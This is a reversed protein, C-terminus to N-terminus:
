AANHKARDIIFLRAKTGAKEDDKGVVKTIVQSAEPYMLTTEGADNTKTKKKANNLTIQANKADKGAFPGSKLDVEWGAEGSALFAKLVEDGAGKVRTDALLEDIMSTDIASM